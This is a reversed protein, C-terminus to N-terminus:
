PISPASFISKYTLFSVCYDAQLYFYFSYISTFSVCTIVLANLLKNSSFSFSRTLAAIYFPNLIMMYRSLLGEGMICGITAIIIGFKFIVVFSSDKEKRGHYIIFLLPIITLVVLFIFKILAFLGSRTSTFSDFYYEYRQLEEINNILLEALTATIANRGIFLTALSMVVVSIILWKSFFFSKNRHTIFVLPILVLCSTHIFSCLVLLLFFIIKGKISFRYKALIFFAVIFLYSTIEHRMAVLNNLICNINFFLMLLVFWYFRGDVYKEFFLTYIGFWLLSNTALFLTYSPFLSFYRIFLPESHDYSNLYNDVGMLQLNQFTDYYSFWDPGFKYRIAAFIFAIIMTATFISGSNKQNRRMKFSLLICILAFPIYYNM